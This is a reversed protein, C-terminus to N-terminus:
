AIILRGKPKGAIVALKQFQIDDGTNFDSKNIGLVMLTVKAGEKVCYDDGYNSELSQIKANKEPICMNVSLAGEVLTGIVCVAETGYFKDTKVVKLKGKGIADAASPNRGGFTLKILSM